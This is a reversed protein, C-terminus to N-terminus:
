TVPMGFTVCIKKSLFYDMEMTQRKYSWLRLEFVMSLKNHVSKFCSLVPNLLYSMPYFTQWTLTPVPTQIGPVGTLTPPM